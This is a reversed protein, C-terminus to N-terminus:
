APGGTRLPKLVGAELYRNLTDLVGAWAADFAKQGVTGATHLDFGTGTIRVPAPPAVALQPTEGPAPRLTTETAPAQSAHSASGGCATLALLGTLLLLPIRRPM